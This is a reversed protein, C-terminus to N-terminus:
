TVRLLNGVQAQVAEVHSCFISHETAALYSIRHGNDFKPYETWKVLWGNDIKIISVYTIM